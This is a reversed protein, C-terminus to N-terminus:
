GNTLTDEGQLLSGNIVLLSCGPTKEVGRSIMKKRISRAESYRGKATYLNSLLVYAWSHHELKVVRLAVVIFDIICAYHESKPVINYVNCM